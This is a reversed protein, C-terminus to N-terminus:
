HPLQGGAHTLWTEVRQRQMDGFPQIASSLRNGFLTRFDSLVLLRIRQTQQCTGNNGWRTKTKHAKPGWRWCLSTTLLCHCAYREIYADVHMTTQFCVLTCTCASYNLITLAKREVECTCASARHASWECPRVATASLVPPVPDSAGVKRWGPGCAECRTRM